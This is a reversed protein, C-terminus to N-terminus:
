KYGWAGFPSPEGEEEVLEALYSALFLPPLKALIGSLIREKEAATIAHRYKDLIEDRFQNPSTDM